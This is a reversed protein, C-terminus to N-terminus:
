VGEIDGALQQTVNHEDIVDAIVNQLDETTIDVEDRKLSASALEKFYALFNQKESVPDSTPTEPNVANESTDSNQMELMEKVQRDKEVLDNIKQYYGAQINLLYKSLIKPTEGLSYIVNVMKNITDYRPTDHQRLKELMTPLFVNGLYVAFYCKGHIYVNSNYEVEYYTNDETGVRKVLDPNAYTSPRITLKIIDKIEKELKEMLPNTDGDKVDINKLEPNEALQILVYTKIECLLCELLVIYPTITQQYQESLPSNFKLLSRGYESVAIAVNNIYTQRTDFNFAMANNEKEVLSTLMKDFAEKTIENPADIYWSFQDRLGKRAGHIPSMDTIKVFSTLSNFLDHEKMDILDQEKYANHLHMTFLIYHYIEDTLEDIDKHPILGKYEGPVYIIGSKKSEQEEIIALVEEKSYVKYGVEQNETDNNMKIEKINVDNMSM